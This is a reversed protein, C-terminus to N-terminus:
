YAVSDKSKVLIPISTHLKCTPIYNALQVVTRHNLMALMGWNMKFFPSFTVLSTLYVVSVNNCLCLSLNQHYSIVWMYPIILSGNTPLLMLTCVPNELPLVM